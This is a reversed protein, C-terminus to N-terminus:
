RFKAQVSGQEENMVHCIHGHYKIKKYKWPFLFYVTIVILDSTAELFSLSETIIKRNKHSNHFMTLKFTTIKHSELGIGVRFTYIPKTIAWRPASSASLM